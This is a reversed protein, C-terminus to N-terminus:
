TFRSPLKHEEYVVGDAQICKPALAEFKAERHGFEVIVISQLMDESIGAERLLDITIDIGRRGLTEVMKMVADTEPHDWGDFPCSGGEFYHGSNCRFYLTRM